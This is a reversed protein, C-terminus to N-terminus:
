YNGNITDAFDKDSLSGGNIEDNVENSGLLNGYILEVDAKIANTSSYRLTASAFLTHLANEHMKGYCSVVNAAVTRSGFLTNRNIKAQRPLYTIEIWLHAPVREKLSNIVDILMNKIDCNSIRLKIANNYYTDYVSFEGICEGDTLAEVIAIIQAMSLKGRGLFYTKIIKRREEIPRNSIGTIGLYNELESAKDENITDIFHNDLILDIARQMDEALLAEIRIIEKMEYIDLYWKPYMSSIQEFASINNYLSM